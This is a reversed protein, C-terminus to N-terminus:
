FHVSFDTKSILDDGIKVVVDYSAENNSTCNWDREVTIKLNKKLYSRVVDGIYLAEKETLKTETSDM